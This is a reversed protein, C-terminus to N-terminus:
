FTQDPPQLQCCPFSAAIVNILTCFPIIWSITNWKVKLCDYPKTSFHYGVSNSFLPPCYIQEATEYCMTVEMKM